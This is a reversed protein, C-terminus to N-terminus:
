IGATTRRVKKWHILTFGDTASAATRVTANRWRLGGNKTRTSANTILFNGAAEHRLGVTEADPTQM